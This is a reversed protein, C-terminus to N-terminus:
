PAISLNTYQGLRLSRGEHSTAFAMAYGNHGSNEPFLMSYGDITYDIILPSVHSYGDM